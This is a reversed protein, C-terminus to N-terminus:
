RTTTTTTSTALNAGNVLKVFKTEWEEKEEVPHKDPHMELALRRYAKKIDRRSADTEVGLVEYLTSCVVVM